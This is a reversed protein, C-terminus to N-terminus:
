RIRGANPRKQAVHYDRDVGGGAAGAALSPRDRFLQIAVERVPEEVQEAEIV